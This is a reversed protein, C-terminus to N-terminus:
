DNELYIVAGYAKKSADSFGHLEVHAIKSDKDFYWRPIHKTSLHPLESRWQTQADCITPPVPDDWDVKLEWLQQLLIKIKITSPSFWGVVDFTKAIDSVFERKTINSESPPKSVTLRFPDTQSNWEIGLTKTYHDANPMPQM